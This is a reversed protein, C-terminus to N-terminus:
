TNELKVQEPTFIHLMGKPEDFEFVYRTLGATTKFMAVIWGKAQYNGGIKEARIPYMM